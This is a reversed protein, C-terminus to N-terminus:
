AKELKREVIIGEGIDKGYSEKARERDREEKGKWRGRAERGKM